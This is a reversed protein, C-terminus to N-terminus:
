KAGGRVILVILIVVFRSSLLSPPHPARFFFLIFLLRDEKEEEDGSGIALDGKTRLRYAVYCYCCCCCCCCCCCFSLAFCAFVRLFVCVQPRWTAARRWPGGALCAGIHSPLWQDYEADLDSRIRDGEADKRMQPPTRDRDLVRRIRDETDWAPPAAMGPPSSSPPSSPSSPSSSSSPAAPLVSCPASTAGSSSSSAGAGMKEHLTKDERTQHNIIANYQPDM